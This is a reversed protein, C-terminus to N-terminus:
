KAEKRASDIAAHIKATCEPMPRHGLWRELWKITGLLADREARLRKNEAILECVQERTIPQGQIM